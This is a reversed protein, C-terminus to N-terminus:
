CAVDTLRNGGISDVRTPRLDIKDGASEAITWGECTHLILWIGISSRGLDVGHQTGAHPLDINSRNRRRRFDFLIGVKM